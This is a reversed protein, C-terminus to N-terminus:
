NWTGELNAVVENRSPGKGMHEGAGDGPAKVGMKHGSFDVIQIGKSPLKGGSSLGRIEVDACNHYYQPLINAVWSWVFLCQNRKTCSPVNKPIRIPWEYYADPCSKTYQGILHYSNGGDYSLSFECTGGGHRAQPFQHRASPSPQNKLENANMSSAAFRVPVVQNASLKTVPGPGFGGCPFRANWKQDKYGIFTHVHGNYQRTGYGGRPTPYLLAMHATASGVLSAVIFLATFRM